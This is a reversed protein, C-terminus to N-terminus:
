LPILVPTFLFAAWCHRYDIRTKLNQALTQTYQTLGGFRKSKAKLYFFYFCVFLNPEDSLRFCFHGKIGKSIM